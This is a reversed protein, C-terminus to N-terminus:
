ERAFRPRCPSRICPGVYPSGTMELMGQLCGDEGFTGHTIPFFVDIKSVSKGTKVDIVFVENKKRVITVLPNEINLKVKKPDHPNIWFDANRGVHWVGKKDIGILYVDYKKQNFGHFINWASILSVEHEGSRGGFIIGVKIKKKTM